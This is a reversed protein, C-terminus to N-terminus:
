AEIVHRDRDKAMIEVNAVDTVRMISLGRSSYPKQNLLILTTVSYEYEERATVNLPGRQVENVHVTYGKNM